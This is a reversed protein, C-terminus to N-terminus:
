YEDLKIGVRDETKVDNDLINELEKKQFEM